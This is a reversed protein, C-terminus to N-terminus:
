CWRHDTGPRAWWSGTTSFDTRRATADNWFLKIQKKNAICFDTVINRTKRMTQEDEYARKMDGPELAGTTELYLGAGLMGSHPRIMAKGEVDSQWVNGYSPVGGPPAYLDIRWALAETGWVSPLWHSGSGGFNWEEDGVKLMAPNVNDLTTLRSKDFPQLLDLEIWQLSRMNTPSCLDIGRGKTSKMKNIIEENSGIGTYNVRIGTDARFKELMEESFYDSWMLVNVEGSSALVRRDVIWPGTALAGAAAIGKLVGRRSMRAGSVDRNNM